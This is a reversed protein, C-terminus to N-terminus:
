YRKREGPWGHEEEEEEVKAQEEKIKAEKKKEELAIKKEIDEKAGKEEELKYKEIDVETPKYNSTQIPENTDRNTLSIQGYSIDIGLSSTKGDKRPVVM